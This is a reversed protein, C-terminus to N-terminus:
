FMDSFWRILEIRWDYIHGSSELTYIAYHLSAFTLGLKFKASKVGISMYQSGFSCYTKFKAHLDNSLVDLVYWFNVNIGEDIESSHCGMTQVMKSVVTRIDFSELFDSLILQRFKKWTIKKLFRGSVQWFQTVITLSEDIQWFKLLFLFINTELGEFSLHAFHRV